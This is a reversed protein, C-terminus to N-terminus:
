GAVARLAKQLGTVASGSAGRGLRPTMPDPPLAKWTLPGVVRDAVLHSRQQFSEVLERTKPGCTGDMESFNMEKLMVFLVQLRRVDAGTSGIPFMLGSNM